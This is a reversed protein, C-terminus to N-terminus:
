TNLLLAKQSKLFFYNKFTPDLIYSMDFRYKTSNTSGPFFRIKSHKSM